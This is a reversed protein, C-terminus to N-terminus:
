YIAITQLLAYADAEPNDETVVETLRSDDDISPDSEMAMETEMWRDAPEDERYVVVRDDVVFPEVKV